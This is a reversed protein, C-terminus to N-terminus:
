RRCWMQGLQREVAVRREDDRRGDGGAVVLVDVVVAVLGLGLGLVDEDVDEGVGTEDLTVDRVPTPGFATM